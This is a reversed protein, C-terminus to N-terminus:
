HADEAAPTPLAGPTDVVSVVPIGFRSALRVYRAARRYADPSGLGAGVCSDTGGGIGAYKDADGCAGGLVSSLLLLRQEHAGEGVTAMCVQLARDRFLSGAVRFAREAIDQPAQHAPGRCDRYSFRPRAGLAASDAEAPPPAPTFPRFFAVM